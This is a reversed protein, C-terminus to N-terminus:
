VTRESFLRTPLSGILTTLELLLHKITTSSCFSKRSCLKMTMSSCFSKRSCLKMTMLSCFSKRYCLKIATSSCFSKRCWLKFVKTYKSFYPSLIILKITMSSRLSKCKTSLEMHIFVNNRSSFMETLM